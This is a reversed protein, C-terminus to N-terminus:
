FELSPARLLLQEVVYVEGADGYFNIICVERLAMM